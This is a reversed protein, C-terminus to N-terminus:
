YNTLQVFKIASITKSRTPIGHKIHLVEPLKKKFKNNKFSNSLIEFHYINVDEHGAKEANKYLHSIM